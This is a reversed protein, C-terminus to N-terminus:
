YTEGTETHALKWVRLTTTRPPRQARGVVQEYLPGINHMLIVDSAATLNMGSGYFNCNILLARPETGEAFERVRKAVVNANGKVMSFKWGADHLTQSVHDNMTYDNDSFILVKAPEPLCGLHHIISRLNQQKTNAIELGEVGHQPEPQEPPALGDGGSPAVAETEPTRVVCLQSSTVNAKCMPCSGSGTTNGRLMWTTICGLCFSNGCCPLVTKTSINEFCIPCMTCSEIRQRLAVLKEEERAIAVQKREVARKQDEESTWLRTQLHLLGVRLNHLERRIHLSAAFVINDQDQTGAGLFEMAAAVDGANIRDLVQSDIINRLVAISRAARCTVVLEAYPPTHFSSDIFQNDCVLTIRDVIAPLLPRTVCGYSGTMHFLNRIYQSKAGTIATHVVPADSHKIIIGGSNLM